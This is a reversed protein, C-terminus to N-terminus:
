KTSGLESVCSPVHIHFKYPICSSHSSKLIVNRLHFLPGTCTAVGRGRRGTRPHEMPLSMSEPKATARSFDSYDPFSQFLLFSFLVFHSLVGTCFNYSYVMLLLHPLNRSLFVYLVSETRLSTVNAHAISGRCPSPHVSLHWSGSGRGCSIPDHTESQGSGEMSPSLMYLSVDTDLHPQIKLLLATCILIHTYLKTDGKLFLSILIIRIIYGSWLWVAYSGLGVSSPHLRKRFYNIFM